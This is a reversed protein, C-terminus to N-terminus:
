KYLPLWRYYVELAMAALATSCVRGGEECLKGEPDWSGAFEGDTRQHEAVMDRFAANWAKWREDGMQFMALTGWYWYHFDVNGESWEPLHKVLYDAGGTLLPHTRKWGMLERSVMAVATAFPSREAGPRLSARGTKEDTVKDLWYLADIFGSPGPIDEPSRDIYVTVGPKRPPGVQLGARRASALQAIFWGTTAMDPEGRPVSGWGALKRQHGFVSYDVANQAAARTEPVGAMAYAESLCSGCIAHQLGAMKPNRGIRGNATQQRTIWEVARTVAPRYRGHKETHGAGLLAFLALGTAGADMGEAGGSKAADWRGDPEQHRALWEVAMDVAPNTRRAVGGRVPPRKPRGAPVEAATDEQGPPPRSSSPPAQKRGCGSACAALVLVLAVLRPEPM